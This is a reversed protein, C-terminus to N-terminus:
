VKLSIALLCCPHFTKHRPSLTGRGDGSPTVPSDAFGPDLDLICDVDECDDHYIGEVGQRSWFLRISIDRNTVDDAAYSSHPQRQLEVSEVKVIEGFSVVM